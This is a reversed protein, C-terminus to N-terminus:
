EDEEFLAVIETALAGYVILTEELTIPLDPIFISQVPLPRM